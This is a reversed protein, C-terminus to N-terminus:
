SHTTFALGKMGGSDIAYRVRKWKWKREGQSVGRGGGCLELGRTAVNSQRSDLKMKGM